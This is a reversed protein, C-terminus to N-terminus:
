SSGSCRSMCCLSPLSLASLSIRWHESGERIERVVGIFQRHLLIVIVLMALALRGIAVPM